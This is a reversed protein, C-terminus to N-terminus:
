RTAIIVAVTAAVVSAVQGLITLASTFIDWFKPAPPNEPIWITDGPDLSDIDDADVWEGTNAKVIRVDGELARWAFGGALQIYDDVTLNKQYVINGPNVVQGLLIVYNKAEPVNIVDGRRLIVNENTDNHMFLKEFDVVVKGSRQRSKAKLYDYEDDTLEARPILRLRELEPDEEVTGMNRTLTAEILSADKRFGGAEEIIDALTTENENIKYFGPYKVFGDIKVIKEIYYDPIERVLVKDGPQLIINNGRIDDYSYYASILSKGDGTYRVHEITDKRATFLFGGALSILDGITEGEVYEYVAPYKVTGFISVTKDIRDVIVADGEKLVPNNLRSGYRLFSLLDYSATDGTRSVIKINRYNSAPNMGASNMVLDILRANGPLVFSSPKVVDGLLSVKIKRFDVLSIFVDVNKYYRNIETDIKEKAKALTLDKLDIGGVRPIYLLGEQNIILNLSIDEIGSISIFLKDGPGTVYEAPDISGETAEVAPQFPLASLSDRLLFLSRESYDPM